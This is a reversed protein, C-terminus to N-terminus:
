RFLNSAMRGFRPNPNRERWPRNGTYTELRKTRDTKFREFGAARRAEDPFNRLDDLSPGLFRLPKM